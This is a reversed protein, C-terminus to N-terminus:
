FQSTYFRWPARLMIHERGSFSNELFINIKQDIKLAWLKRDPKQMKNYRVQQMTSSFELWSLFQSTYFRWPAKFILPVKGTIATELLFISENIL